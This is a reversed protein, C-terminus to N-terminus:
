LGLQRRREQQWAAVESRDISLHHHLAWNLGAILDQPEELGVGLRVFRDIGQKEVEAPLTFYESVTKHHNVKSVLGDFSLSYRFTVTMALVDAFHGTQEENLGRIRFSLLSAPLTYHQRVIERDPYAAATPHYVQEVLSHRDLFSVIEAATRCRKRFREEARELSALIGAASRWSLVGGRMAQLDMARNLFGVRRSALYGWMDRDEGSMAKTGAAVIVDIGPYELLPRKVGWPTAVTNDVVMRLKPAREKRLNEVTRSVQSPDLASLTPNTYTEAFVMATNEKVKERLTEPTIQDVLEAEVRLREAAWKLYAKTKNYVQRSMLVHSGPEVLVDQVLATAQMGCDTVLAGAASELEVIKDILRRGPVTSYRGYIPSLTSWCKQSLLTATGKEEQWAVMPQGGLLDIPVSPGEPHLYPVGTTRIHHDIASHLRRTSKAMRDPSPPEAPCSRPDLYAELSM